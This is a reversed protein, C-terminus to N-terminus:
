VALQRLQDQTDTALREFRLAYVGYGEERLVRAWGDLQRNGHVGLDFSVVEDSALPRSTAVCMGGPGLNVTRAAIASGTRRQLTCPVAIPARPTRRRETVAAQRPRSM